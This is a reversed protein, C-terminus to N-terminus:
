GDRLALPRLSLGRSAAARRVRDGDGDGTLVLLNEPEPPVAPGPVSPGADGGPTGARRGERDLLAEMRRSVGEVSDYVRIDPAAAEIFEPLLFLFHTCGLVLADAGRDRLVGIYPAAMGRREEADSSDCRYEVFDVLDPAALGFVTCNPDYRAALKTIYPDEITRETGLVGVIRRRSELVAPKIAPVTGVFPLAPFRSRLSELTSVTATNCVMAALKPNFRAILKEFLLTLLALLEERTRPGYPFNARDAVYILAEAPNRRHFHGCYPLGGIGSDLFLVPRNDM